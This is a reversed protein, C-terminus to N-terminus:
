LDVSLLLLNCLACVVTFPFSLPCRLIRGVVGKIINSAKIGQRGLSILGKLCSMSLQAGIGFKEQGARNQLSSM